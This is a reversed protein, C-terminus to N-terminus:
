KEIGDIELEGFTIEPKKEPAKQYNKPLIKYIIYSGGILMVALLMYLWLIYNNKM